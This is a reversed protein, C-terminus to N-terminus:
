TAVRLPVAITVTRGAAGTHHVRGGLAAIREHMGTLGNGEAAAGGVGDDAIVLRLEGDRADLGIHCTSANAHRAVNTVAERLALALEHETSGVIALKADRRVLVEVGLSSLAARASELEADLSAQRWGSVTDRIETLATRATGEIEAAEERARAPDQDVLEGILQARVIIATLSHGLLDHLDRAIREREALTALHEIRANHIRLDADAREREAWEVQLTGILWLFLLSPVIGYLRWPMPVFSLVSFLSLLLSLGIFWRLANRRSESVGAFAAAYVFLVAAGSNFPTVAAGLLATPVTCWWRARTPRLWVVAYMPVFVVVVGAVLLWDLWTSGPDFVPSWLLNALYVLHVWRTFRGTGKM